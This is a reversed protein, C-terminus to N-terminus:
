TSKKPTLGLSSCIFDIAYQDDNSWNNYNDGSMIVQKIDIPMGKSDSLIVNFRIQVGFEFEMVNYRFQTITQTPPVFSSPTISIFNDM